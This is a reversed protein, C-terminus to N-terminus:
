RGVEAGPPLLRGQQVDQSLSTTTGLTQILRGYDDFDENLTLQRNV